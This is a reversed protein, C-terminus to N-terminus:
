NKLFEFFLKFMRFAPFNISLKSVQDFVLNDDCKFVYGIIGACIVFSPSCGLSITSNVSCTFNPLIRQVEPEANGAEIVKTPDIANEFNSHGISCM